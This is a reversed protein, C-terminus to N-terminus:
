NSKIKYMKDMNKGGARIELVWGKQRWDHTRSSIRCCNGKIKLLRDDACLSSVRSGEVKNHICTRVCSICL